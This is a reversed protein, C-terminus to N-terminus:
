AAPMGRTALNKNAYAPDGTLERGMWRPPDFQESLRDSGFEIEATVLGDLEGRYVDVEIEGAPSPVYHRAKRLRRGETLPWLAAFQEAGIEVEVESRRRGEGGKVTLYTREGLKRLRVEARDGEIALYGQEIEETQCDDLWAPAASVLFKREIEVTM